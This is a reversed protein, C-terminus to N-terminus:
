EIVEEQELNTSISLGFLLIDLYTAVVTAVLSAMPAVERSLRVPVVLDCLDALDSPEPVIGIIRVGRELAAQSRASLGPNTPWVSLLLVLDEREMLAIAATQAEGHNLAYMEVGSALFRMPLEQVLRGLEGRAFVFLRRSNQIDSAADRLTEVPLRDRVRMLEAIVRDIVRHGLDLGGESGLSQHRAAGTNRALEKALAMKLDQFGTRGLARCFRLVTPESVGAKEAVQSMAMNIFLNPQALVLEAVKRESKRLQEMNSEIRSIMM